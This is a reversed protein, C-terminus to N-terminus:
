RVPVRRRLEELFGEVEDVNFVLQDTRRKLGFLGRVEVPEKLLLRMNPRGALGCDLARPYKRKDFSKVQEASRVLSLDIDANWRIGTRFLLKGEDFVLPRKIIAALDAILFILTYISLVTAAVAAGKSWNWLLLHVGTTEALMVFCLVAWLSAYGTRQHTSFYKQGPLVEKKGLWFFLGYRVTGIEGAVLSVPGSNGFAERLSRELNFLFDRRESSFKKYTRVIKRIRTFGYVAILLETVILLKKVQDLHQQNEPPLLLTALGTCLLFVILTAAPFTKAKRQVLFFYLLPIVLTLDLTVALSLLDPHARFDSTHIVWFGAAAILAAIGAFSAIRIRPSLANTMFLLKVQDMFAVLM